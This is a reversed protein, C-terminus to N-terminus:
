RSAAEAEMAGESQHKATLHQEDDSSIAIPSPPPSAADMARHRVPPPLSNCGPRLRARSRWVPRTSPSRRRAAGLSSMWGPGEDPSSPSADTPAPSRAEPM